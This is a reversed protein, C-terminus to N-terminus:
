WGEMLKASCEAYVLGACAAPRASAERIVSPGIVAAAGLLFIAAVVLFVTDRKTRRDLHGNRADISEDPHMNFETM